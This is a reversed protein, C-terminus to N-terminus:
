VQQRASTNSPHQEKHKYKSHWLAAEALRADLKSGKLMKTRIQSNVDAFHKTLLRSAKASNEGRTIMVKALQMAAHEFLDARFDAKNAAVFFM